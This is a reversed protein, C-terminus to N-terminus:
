GIAAGDLVGLGLVPRDEGLERAAYGADRACGCTRARARRRPTRSRDDRRPPDPSQRGLRQRGFARVLGTEALEAWLAEPVETEYREVSSALQAPTRTGVVVSVVAPHRLPFAVAAEPLTVGHRECVEALEPRASPRARPAARRLRLPRGRAAATPSCGRTTSAAAVVGVGREAGRCCSPSARGAGAPHLARRVDRHRRRHARIFETLM